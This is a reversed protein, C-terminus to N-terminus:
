KEMLHNLLESSLTVTNNDKANIKFNKVNARTLDLHNNKNLDAELVNFNIYRDRENNGISFHSSGAMSIKCSDADGINNNLYFYSLDSLQIALKKSNLSLVTFTSNSMSITEVKPTFIRISTVDDMSYDSKDGKFTIFLTDNEVFINKGLDISNRNGKSVFVSSFEGTELEIGSRICHVMKIHKFPQGVIKEYGKLPDKSAGKPKDYERKLLLTSVFSSCLILAFVGVLLRTSWKNKIEKKFSNLFKM